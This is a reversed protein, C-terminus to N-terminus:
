FDPTNDRIEKNIREKESHLYINTTSRNHHGYQSQIADVSIGAMRKKEGGLGKMSYLTVNIGLEDKVLTKWLETARNRHMRKYGCRFGASFIYMDPQYKELELQNIYPVLSNPIPVKRSERTKSRGETAHIDFCQNLWDIDEVRLGLLEKPRIGALTEFAVYCLFYPHAEKLHEKIIQEEAETAHRHVNTSIENRKGIHDCPNFEIADYEFLETLIAQLCRKYKNYNNGTFIKGKEAKDYAAQRDAQMQDLLQKIHKRKLLSVPLIGINLTEASRQAFNKVKEYDLYSKPALNAKKKQLGFDLAKNFSMQSLNEENSAAADQLYDALEDNFPNFGRELARTLMNTIANGEIYREQKTHLYNIGFRYQFLKRKDQVPDTFRFAVYWEKSIDGNRDYLKPKSYGQKIAM